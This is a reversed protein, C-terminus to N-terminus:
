SNKSILKKLYNGFLYPNGPLYKAFNQNPLDKLKEHLNSCTSYVLYNMEAMKEALEFQHNDMLDENCVVLLKKDNELSEIISGSGAHSIVLDAKLLDDKLSSKYRYAEIELGNKNFKICANRDDSLSKLNQDQHNGSGIQLIITKFHLKKALELIDEELIKNILREFKTTGVTVFLINNM